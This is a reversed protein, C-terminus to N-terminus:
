AGHLRHGTRRKWWRASVVPRVEPSVWPRMAIPGTRSPPPQRQSVPRAGQDAAFRQDVEDGVRIPPQLRVGPASREVGGRPAGDELVDLDEVVPLAAVRREAVETRCVVFGVM